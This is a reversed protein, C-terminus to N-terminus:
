QIILWRMCEELHTNEMAIIESERDVAGIQYRFIALFSVVRRFGVEGKKM